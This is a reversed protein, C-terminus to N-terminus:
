SRFNVVVIFSFAYASILVVTHWWKTYTHLSIDDTHKFVKCKVSGDADINAIPLVTCELLQMSSCYEYECIIPNHNVGVFNRCM